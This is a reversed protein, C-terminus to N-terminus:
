KKSQLRRRLAAWNFAPGPDTKRQPAVECHGVVQAPSIRPYRRMLWTVAAVLRDYQVPTYALQDTGELEIGISYDNCAERGQWASEGAHWAQWNFPVFQTVKGVRDILLHASVRVGQLPALDASVSCDLRNLFLEQIAEGGFCGAPLSIGHVVILDIEAGPPRESSNPSDHFEAGPLLQYEETASM